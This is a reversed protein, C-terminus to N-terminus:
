IWGFDNAHLTSMQVGVLVVTNGLGDGIWTDAGVQAANAMVQNFSSFLSSSFLLADESGAGAQFDTIVDVGFGPRIIFLDSGAGGTLTDYGAGGEIVNGQGNGIIINDGANGTGFRQNGYVMVLNDVNDPLHFDVYAYVNDATGGGAQEFVVDGVNDVEYFDSGQGGILIDSGTGGLLIDIGDGGELRDNGSGGDLVDNGSDGYLEDNGAGGSLMDDGAFGSMRDAFASLTITDNGSFANEILALEDANSVTLAANYLAAASLSIGQAYWLYQAPLYNYETVFNVTGSIIEGFSNEVIDSGLFWLDRENQGDFASVYYSDAYTIGNISVYKNKELIGDYAYASYWNLNIATIDFASNAVFTAM